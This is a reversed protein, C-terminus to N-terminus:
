RPLADVAPDPLPELLQHCAAAIREAWIRYGEPGPHFKDSCMMARGERRSIDPPRTAVDVSTCHGHRAVVRSRAAEFWRGRWGVFARLPQLIREPMSMDPLSLVVTPVPETARVIEDLRTAYASRSSLRAVDNAGVCLVVLDAGLGGLEPLQEAIVDDSTAGPRALVTIDISRDLMRSVLRAPTDDVEDVGLGAALSDGLWVVKLPRHGPQGTSGVLGDADLAEVYPRPARKASRVQWAFLAWFLGGLTPVAGLGAVAAATTAPRRASTSVGPATATSRTM